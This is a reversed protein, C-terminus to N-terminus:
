YCTYLCDRGADWFNSVNVPELDSCRTFCKKAGELDYIWHRVMGTWELIRAYKDDPLAKQVEDNGDVLAFAEEFSERSKKYMGDYVQREGIKLLLTAREAKAPIDTAGETAPLAAQLKSLSGAMAVQAMWSNYGSYSKLLQLITYSSPLPRDAEPTAKIEKMKAEVQEPVLKMLLEELKQQSLVPPPTPIGFRLKDRHEQMFLLQIACAEVLADSFRQQTELIRLKRTRAKSHHRDLALINECDEIALELLSDKEYMASRNNLITIMQKFLPSTSQKV